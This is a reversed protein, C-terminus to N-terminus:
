AKVKARHSRMRDALVEGVARKVVEFVVQEVFHKTVCFECPKLKVAAEKVDARYQTLLKEVAVGVDDKVANALRDLIEEVEPSGTYAYYKDRARYKLVKGVRTLEVLGADKLVALHYRIANPTKVIGKERLAEAIEMVSMPREELMELIMIRFEDSLAKVEELRIPLIRRTEM